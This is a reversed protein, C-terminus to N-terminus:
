RPALYGGRLGRSFVVQWLQLHRVRFGAISAALYYRWMRRFREDYRAPLRPWAAEINARWALLTREYDAGFGHWDEIVFPGESAAAIQRASPLMSNPFIYRAIWPDTRDGSVNRGITHLLTIGDPALCRDLCA